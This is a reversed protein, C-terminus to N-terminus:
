AFRLTSLRLRITAIINGQANSQVLLLTLIIESLIKKMSEPTEEGYAQNRSSLAESHGIAARAGFFALERKDSLLLSM